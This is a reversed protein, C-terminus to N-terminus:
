GYYFGYRKHRSVDYGCDSRIDRRFLYFKERDAQLRVACSRLTRLSRLSLLNGRLASANRPLLFPSAKEGNKYYCLIFFPRLFDNKVIPAIEVTLRWAEGFTHRFNEKLLNHMCREFDHKCLLNSNRIRFLSFLFLDLPIASYSIILM